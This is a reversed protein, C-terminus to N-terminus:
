LDKLFQYKKEFYNNNLLINMMILYYKNIILFNVQNHQSVQYKNKILNILIIIKECFFIKIKQKLM